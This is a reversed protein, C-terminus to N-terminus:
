NKPAHNEDMDKLFILYIKMTLNIKWTGCIRRDSILDYLYPRIEELDKELPLKKDADCKSEHEINKTLRAM